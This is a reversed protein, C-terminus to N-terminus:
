QKFSCTLGVRKKSFSLAGNYPLVTAELRACHTVTQWGGVNHTTVRDMSLHLKRTLDPTVFFRRVADTNVELAEAVTELSLHFLGPRGGCIRPLFSCDHFMQLCRIWRASFHVLGNTACSNHLMPCVPRKDSVTSCFPFSNSGFHSVRQWLDHTTPFPNYTDVTVGYYRMIKGVDRAPRSSRCPRRPLLALLCALDGASHVAYLCHSSRRCVGMAM